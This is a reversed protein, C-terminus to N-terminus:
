YNFDNNQFIHGKKIKQNLTKNLIENEKGPPFGTGPRICILDDKKIRAGKKLIKNSAISRKYSQISPKESPQININNEGLTKEILRIKNILRKMDKPDASLQHDRFNSYNKDLTFHKEVIEAGCAVSLAAAEIGLTHDSYGITLKEFNKKLINISKLNAQNIPTPYTSVCHLLAVNYANITNKKIFKVINKVQQLNVLGTSLILPKDFECVKKILSYYENDGSSIKFFSQIKNLFIASKIDFPTSCFLINKKEAFNALKEFQSYSFEFSKLKNFREKNDKNIFLEPVITQFKVADVGTDSAASIMDLAINFNGEHNNGIEAIIFVKKSTDFNEIIM